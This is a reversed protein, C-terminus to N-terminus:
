GRKSNIIIDFVVYIENREEFLLGNMTPISAPKGGYMEYFEVLRRLYEKRREVIRCKVGDNMAESYKQFSEIQWQTLTLVHFIKGQEKEEQMQEHETM